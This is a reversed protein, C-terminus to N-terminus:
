HRKQFPEAGWDWHRPGWQVKPHHPWWGWGANAGSGIDSAGSTWLAPCCGCTAVCVIRRGGGGGFTAPSRGGM